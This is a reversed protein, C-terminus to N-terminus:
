FQRAVKESIRDTDVGARNLELLKKENEAHRVTLELRKNLMEDRMLEAQELQAEHKIRNLEGERKKEEKIEKSIPTPVQDSSKMGAAVPLAVPWFMGGVIGTYYHGCHEWDHVKRNCKSQGLAHIQRGAGGAIFLYFMTLLLITFIM